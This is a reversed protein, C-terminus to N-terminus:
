LVADVRQEIHHLVANVLECRKLPKELFEDCGAQFWAQKLDATPLATAAIIAGGYGLERLRATAELGSMKLMQFDMVVADYSVSSKRVADVAARGNCELTVQAGATQLYKLYLRGQDPCDEVLLVQKGALVPIGAPLTRGDNIAPRGSDNM